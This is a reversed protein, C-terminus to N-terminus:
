SLNQEASQGINEATTAIRGLKTTYTRGDAMLIVGNNVERKPSTQIMGSNVNCDNMKMM